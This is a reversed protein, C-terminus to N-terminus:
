PASGRDLGHQLRDESVPHGLFHHGRCDLPAVLAHALNSYALDGAGIGGAPEPRDSYSITICSEDEHETDQSASPWLLLLERSSHTSSSVAIDAELFDRGPLSILQSVKGVLHDPPYTEDLGTTLMVDGERMDNRPPVYRLKLQHGDGEALYLDGTRGNRVLMAHSADTILLVTSQGSGIKSIQGVVGESDLVPQGIYIGDQGGRDIVIHQQFPGSDVHTVRALLSQHTPQILDMQMLKRLRLNELELTNMDRLRQKERVLQQRLQYNQDILDEITWFRKQVSDLFQGPISTLSIIAQVPIGIIFYLQRSLNFHHDANM